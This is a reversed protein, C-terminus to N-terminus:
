KADREKFSHGCHPCVIEPTKTIEDLRAVDDTPAFGELLADLAAQDYGTGVLGAQSQALGDLLTALAENDYDGLDSTRNDALLIRQEADEDVDVWAVDVADLGAARAARARHNGALIYGTRKNAVITGFFGNNDISEKVAEMNGRRPNLPHERLRALAVREITQTIIRSM